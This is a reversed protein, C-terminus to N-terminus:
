RAEFYRCWGSSSIKGAVASCSMPEQFMSCRGCRERGKPADQYDATAKSAKSREARAVAIMNAHDHDMPAKSPNPALGRADGGPLSLMSPVMSAHAYSLQRPTRPPARSAFPIGAVSRLSAGFSTDLPTGTVNPGKVATGAVLASLGEDSLVVM